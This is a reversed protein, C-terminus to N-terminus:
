SGTENAHIHKLQTPWSHRKLMWTSRVSRRLRYGDKLLALLLEDFQMILQKANAEFLRSKSVDAVIRSSKKEIRPHNEFDM